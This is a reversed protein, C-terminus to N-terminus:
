GSIVDDMEFTNRRTTDKAARATPEATKPKAHLEPDPVLKAPSAPEDPPSPIMRGSPPVAVPPLEAAPPAVLEAPPAVAVQVRSPCVHVFGSWHQESAHTSPTHTSNPAHVPAPVAHVVALPHQLPRQSGTVPWAPTRSHVLKQRRSPCAHVLATSQQESPQKPPLHPPPSQTTSPCGQPLLASHQEFM